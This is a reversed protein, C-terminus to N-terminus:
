KKNLLEAVKENLSNLQQQQETLKGNQEDLKKQQAIIYLTLEEIKEQQLRTMNGLEVGRKEVEASSPINPLHGNANIFAEVQDLPMLSYGEDFVYDAWGTAVFVRETVIGGQVFLKYGSTNVYRHHRPEFISSPTNTTGISVKGAQSLTMSVPSTPSPKFRLDNFGELINLGFLDSDDALRVDGNVQLKATPQTVGIGVSGNSLITMVETKNSTNNLDNLFAFSLKSRTNPGWQISLDKTDGSGNLAFIGAQGSWQSRLGYVPLTTTLGPVLQISPQGIGIWQNASGLDGFQGAQSHGLLSGDSQTNFFSNFPLGVRPPQASVLSSVTLLLAFFVVRLMKSTMM